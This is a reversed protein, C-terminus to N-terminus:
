FRRWVGILPGAEAPGAKGSVSGRWGAQLRWDGFQHVATVELKVWEPDDDTRGAYAQVLVLWDAAPEVGATLDVRTESPLEFRSIRAAQAEVFVPRGAIGFSRGALLRTEYDTAGAGPEAYGVNRGEGNLISGLYLAVAGRDGGLLTYRVGLEAPGRGEYAGGMADAGRTWTLKGQVTVRDSLGYEVYLSVAEDTRDVADYRNGFADFAEESRSREYKLIALTEGQALPWAGATAEGGAFVAALALLGAVVTRLRDRASANSRGSRGAWSFPLAATAASGEDRGGALIARVRRAM